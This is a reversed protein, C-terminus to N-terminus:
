KTLEDTSLVSSNTLYAIINFHLNMFSLCSIKIFVNILHQLTWTSWSTEIVIPPQPLSSPGGLRSITENRKHTRAHQGQSTPESHFHGRWGSYRKDKDRPLDYRTDQTIKQNQSFRWHNRSLEKHTQILEWHEQTENIERSNLNRRM